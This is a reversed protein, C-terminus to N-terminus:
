WHVKHGYAELWLPIEFSKENLINIHSEKEKCPVQPGVNTTQVNKATLLLTFNMSTVVTIGNEAVNGAKGRVHAFKM